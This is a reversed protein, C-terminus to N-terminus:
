FFPKRNSFKRTSLSIGQPYPLSTRNTRFSTRRPGSHLVSFGSHHVAPRCRLVAITWFLPQRNQVLLGSRLVTRTWFDPPNAPSFYPQPGSRLVTQTWFRGGGERASVQHIQTACSTLNQVPSASRLVTQTWILSTEPVSATDDLHGNTQSSSPPPLNARRIHGGTTPPIKPRLGYKM